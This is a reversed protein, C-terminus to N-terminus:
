GGDHSPPITDLWAGVWGSLPNWGFLLIETKILNCQLKGAKLWELLAVM